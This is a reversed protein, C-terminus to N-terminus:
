AAPIGQVSAGSPRKPNESAIINRAELWQESMRKIQLTKSLHAYHYTDDLTQLDINPHLPVQEGHWPDAPARVILTPPLDHERLDDPFTERKLIKLETLMRQCHQEYEAEHRKVFALFIEDDMDIALDALLEEMTSHAHIARPRSADVKRKSNMPRNMLIAAKFNPHELLMRLALHTGWSHAILITCDHESADDVHKQLRMDRWTKADEGDYVPPHSFVFTVRDRMADRLQYWDPETNQIGPVILARPIDGISADVNKESSSFM